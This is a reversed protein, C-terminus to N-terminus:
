LDLSETDVPELRDFVDYGLVTEFFEALEESEEGERSALYDGDGLSGTNVARSSNPAQVYSWGTELRNIRSTASDYVSPHRDVATFRALPEQGGLEISLVDVHGYGEEFPMEGSRSAMAALSP